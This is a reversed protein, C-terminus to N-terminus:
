EPDELFAGREPCVICNNPDHMIAYQERIRQVDYDTFRAKTTGAELLKYSDAVDKKKRHFLKFLFRAVAKPHAFPSFLAAYEAWMGACLARSGMEGRHMTCVSAKVCNSQGSGPIICYEPCEIVHRKHFFDLMADTNLGPFTLRLILGGKGVEADLLRDCEAASTLNGVLIPIFHSKLRLPVESDKGVVEIPKPQDAPSSRVLMTVHGPQIRFGKLPPEARSKSGYDVLGQDYVFFETTTGLNSKVPKRPPEPVWFGSLNLCHRISRRLM